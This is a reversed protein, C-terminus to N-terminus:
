ASGTASRIPIPGGPPLSPSEMPEETGQELDRKEEEGGSHVRQHKVLADADRFTAGCQDCRYTNEQKDM